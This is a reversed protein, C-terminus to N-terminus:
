IEALKSLQEKAAARIDTMASQARGGKTLAVLRQFWNRNINTVLAFLEQPDALGFPATQSLFVQRAQAQGGPGSLLMREITLVRGEARVQTPARGSQSRTDALIRISWGAPETMALGLSFVCDSPAVFGWQTYISWCDGDHYRALIEDPFTGSMEVGGDRAGFMAARHDHNLMDMLPMMVRGDPRDPSSMDRIARTDRFWDLLAADSFEPFRTLGLPNGSLVMNQVEAPLRAQGTIHRRGDRQVAPTFGFSAYHRRFFVRAADGVAAAEDVDLVGDRLVVAEAPVLLSRPLVIRSPADREVAFLGMGRPGRGPRVNEVVGGQERVMACLVEWEASGSM